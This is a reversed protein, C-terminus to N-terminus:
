LFSAGDGDSDADDDGDGDDNDDNAVREQNCKGRHGDERSCQKNKKCSPYFYNYLATGPKAQKRHYQLILPIDGQDLNIPKEIIATYKGPNTYMEAQAESKTAFTKHYKGNSYPILFQGDTNQHQGNGAPYSYCLLSNQVKDGSVVTFDTGNTKKLVELECCKCFYVGVFEGNGDQLNAVALVDSAICAEHNRDGCRDCEISQSSYESPNIDDDDEDGDAKSKGSAEIFCGYCQLTSVVSHGTCGGSFDACNFGGCAMKGFPKTIKGDSSKHGCHRESTMNTCKQILRPAQIARWHGDEPVHGNYKGNFTSAKNCSECVYTQGNDMLTVQRWCHCPRRIRGLKNLDNRGHYPTKGLTTFKPLHPDSREDKDSQWQSYEEIRSEIVYCVVPDQAKYPKKMDISSNYGPFYPRPSHYCAIVDTSGSPKYLHTVAKNSRAFDAAVDPSMPALNQLPTISDYDVLRIINIGHVNLKQVFTDMILDGSSDLAASASDQAVGGDSNSANASINSTSASTNADMPTDTDMAAADRQKKEETAVQRGSYM